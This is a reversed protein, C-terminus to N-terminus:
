QEVQRLPDPPQTMPGMPDNFVPFIPETEQDGSSGIEIM